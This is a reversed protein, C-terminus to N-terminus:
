PRLPDSGNVHFTQAIGAGRLCELAQRLPRADARHSLWRVLRVHSFAGDCKLLVRIILLAHWGGYRQERSALM